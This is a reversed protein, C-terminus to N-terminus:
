QQLNSLTVALRHLEAATHIYDNHEHLAMQMEVSLSLFYQRSSSSSNILAHLNEYRM